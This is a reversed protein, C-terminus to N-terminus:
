AQGLSKSISNAAPKLDLWTVDAKTEGARRLPANSVLENHTTKEKTAEPVAFCGPALPRIEQKRERVAMAPGPVLKGTAKPANDCSPVTRGDVHGEATPTQAAQHM